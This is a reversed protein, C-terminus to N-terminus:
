KNRTLPTLPRSVQVHGPQAAKSVGALHQQAGQALQGRYIKALVAAVSFEFSAAVVVFMFDFFTAMLFGAALFAAM